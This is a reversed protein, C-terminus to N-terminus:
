SYNSFLGLEINTSSVSVLDPFVFSAHLCYYTICGVLTVDCADSLGAYGFMMMLLVNAACVHRRVLCPWFSWHIFMM